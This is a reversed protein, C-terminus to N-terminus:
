CLPLLIILKVVGILLFPFLSPSDQHHFKTAYSSESLPFAMEDSIKNYFHGKECTVM